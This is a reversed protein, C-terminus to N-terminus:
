VIGYTTAWIYDRYETFLNLEAKFLDSEAAAVNDLATNYEEESSMGLEYSKATIELARNQYAVTDEAVSVLRSMEPVTICTLYYNAKFNDIAVVWNRKYTTSGVNTFYEAEANMYAENQNMAKTLNSEYDVAALEEETPMTLPYLYLEGTREMGVMGELTMKTTRVQFDLTEKASELQRLQYEMTELEFLSILGRDYQTQFLAVAREMAAIGRDIDGMANEMTVIAIYLSEAGKVVQNMSTNLTNKTTEITTDLTLASSEYSAIDLELSAIDYGLMSYIGAYLVVLANNIDSVGSVSGEDTSLSVTPSSLFLSQLESLGSKMTELGAVIEYLDDADMEGADSSVAKLYDITYNYELVVTRMDEFHLATARNEPEVTLGAYQISSATITQTQDSAIASATMTVVLAGCLCLSLLRKM